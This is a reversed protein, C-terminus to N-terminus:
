RSCFSRFRIKLPYRFAFLSMVWLGSILAKHVGRDAVAHVVLTEVTPFLGWIGLLAAARITYLRALSVEQEGRRWFTAGRGSM